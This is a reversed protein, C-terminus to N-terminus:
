LGLQVGREPQLLVMCHLRGIAISDARHALGKIVDSGRRILLDAIIKTRAGNGQFLKYPMGHRLQQIM